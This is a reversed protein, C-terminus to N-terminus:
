LVVYRTTLAYLLSNTLAFMDFLNFNSVKGKEELQCLMMITSARHEWVMRWFDDVTDKLPGQTVIYQHRQQYGQFGDSFSITFQSIKTFTIIPSQHFYPAHAM